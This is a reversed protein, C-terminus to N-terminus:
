GGVEEGGWKSFLLAFRGRYYHMHDGPFNSVDRPVHAIDAKAHPLSSSYPCQNTFIMDACFLFKNAWKRKEQLVVIYLYIYM